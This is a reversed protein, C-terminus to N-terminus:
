TSTRLTYVFHLRHLPVSLSKSATTAQKLGNVWFENPSIILVTQMPM